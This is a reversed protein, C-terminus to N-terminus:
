EVIGESLDGVDGRLFQLLCKVIESGYSRRSGTTNSAVAAAAAASVRFVINNGISHKYWGFMDFTGLGLCTTADSPNLETPILKWLKWSQHIHIGIQLM